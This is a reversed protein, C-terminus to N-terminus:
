CFHGCAELASPRSKVVVESSWVLVPGSCCFYFLNLKWQQTWLIHEVQM